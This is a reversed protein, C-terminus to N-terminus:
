IRKLTNQILSIVRKRGSKLDISKMRQSMEQRTQEAEVLSIFQSCIEEDAVNTGLGLNIFGYDPSAFLHTLERKNQALVIAPTATSAVEYITRGASTFIIDAARMHESINSVHPEVVVGPRATLSSHKAYGFGTVVNITIQNAHCYEYIADIVRKTYNNPDVGGFTLLVSAVSASLSRENLYLFEDRLLYYKHGYFHNAVVEKEPYIANIVLDAHKAGPGLDEFNIIKKCVAKLRVMYEQSTDLIDNIVVDPTRSAIDEILDPNEQIFVPYNMSAIKDFALRSDKDVIFEISNNLIDNAIILTNYAHGLGVTQNGTVVFLIRKKKLYYECIIWDEYTDIDINEGHPLLYLDANEGIRNESSVSSSRSILFAGTESFNPTLYQRNVRKVYNPKFKNNEKRWSLHTNDKAAIITDLEPNDALRRIASDLTRRKLLPSTPQATVVIDYDKEETAKAYLYCAYIVPDLTAEDTAINSDRKHIKAGLLNATYLIEHDDSSVYVDPNCELSLATKISYYILPKDNLKRLNKRPIGKSGGRAPIVVLVNM